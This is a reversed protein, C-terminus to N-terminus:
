KVESRRVQKVGSLLDKIKYGIIKLPEGFRKTIQKRFMVPFNFATGYNELEKYNVDDPLAVSRGKVDYYWPIKEGPSYMTHLHKNSFEVAKVHAPVSKRKGGDMTGYTKTPRKLKKSPCLDFVPIKKSYFQAKCRRL